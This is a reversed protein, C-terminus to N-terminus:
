TPRPAPMRSNAVAPSLPRPAGDFRARVVEHSGHRRVTCARVPTPSATSIGATATAGAKRLPRDPWVASHQPVGGPHFPLTSQSRRMRGTAIAGSPTRTRPRPGPRNGGGTSGTPHTICTYPIVSPTDLTGDRVRGHPRRGAGRVGRAPAARSSSCSRRGPVRRTRRPTRSRGLRGSVAQSRRLRGGTPARLPGARRRWRHRAGGAGCRHSAPWRAASYPRRVAASRKGAQGLATGTGPPNFPRPKVPLREGRTRGARGRAGDNWTPAGLERRM